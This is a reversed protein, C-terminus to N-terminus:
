RYVSAQPQSKGGRTGTQVWGHAHKLAEIIEIAPISQVACVADRTPPNSINVPDARPIVSPSGLVVISFLTASLSLYKLFFMALFSKRPIPPHSHIQYSKPKQGSHLAHSSETSSPNSTSSSRLRVNAAIYFSFVTLVPFDKSIYGMHRGAGAM